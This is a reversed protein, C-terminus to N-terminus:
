KKLDSLLYELRAKIKAKDLSDMDQVIDELFKVTFDNNIHNKSLAAEIGKMREDLDSIGAYIGHVFNEAATPERPGAEPEPVPQPEPVAAPEPEQVPEPEEQPEPQAEAFEPQEVTFVVTKESQDPEAAPAVSGAEPVEEFDGSNKLELYRRISYVMAFLAAAFVAAWVYFHPDMWASYLNFKAPM